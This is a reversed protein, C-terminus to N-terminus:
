QSTLGAIDGNLYGLWLQSQVVGCDHLQKQGTYIRHWILKDDLVYVSGSVWDTVLFTSTHSDTTISTVQDLGEPTHLVRGPIPSDTHYTVLTNRGYSVLLTQGLVSIHRPESRAKAPRELRRIVTDSSVSVLCVSSTDWDVVFVTDATYLCVNAANRVCWLRRAPLLRGDQYPFIWVGAERCTVYVRHSSDVRPSCNWHVYGVKVKDILSLSGDGSDSMAYVTLWEATNKLREVCYIRNGDHCLGLLEDGWQIRHRRTEYLNQFEVPLQFLCLM